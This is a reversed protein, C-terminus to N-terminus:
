WGNKAFHSHRKDPNWKHGYPDDKFAEEWDGGSCDKGDNDAKEQRGHKTVPRGGMSQQAIKQQRHTISSSKSATDQRYPHGLGLGTQPKAQIPEIIGKGEPGLGRQPAWGSSMMVKSGFPYKAQYEAFNAASDQINATSIASPLDNPWPEEPSHFGRHLVQTLTSAPNETSSSESSPSRGEREYFEADAQKIMAKIEGPSRLRVINDVQQGSAQVHSSELGSPLNSGTVLSRAHPPTHRTTSKTRVMPKDDVDPLLDAPVTKYHGITNSAADLDGSFLGDLQTTAPPAGIAKRDTPPMQPLAKILKGLVNKELITLHAHTEYYEKISLLLRRGLEGDHKGDYAENFADRLSAKDAVELESLELLNELVAISLHSMKVTWVRFEFIIIASSFFTDPTVQNVEDHAM